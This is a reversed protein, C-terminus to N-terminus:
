FSFGVKLFKFGRLFYKFNGELVVSYNEVKLEIEYVRIEIFIIVFFIRSKIVIGLVFIFVVGFIKFLLFCYLVKEFKNWEGILIRLKNLVRM